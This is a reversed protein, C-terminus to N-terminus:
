LGVDSVADMADTSAGAAQPSAPVHAALVAAAVNRGLAASMGVYASTVRPNVEIVVPGREAHWVLDIGVFGALGPMAAAVARATQDLATHCTPDIDNVAIDVETLSVEGDADVKLRQRNVTLLEVDGAGIRLSLSMADGDVWPEIVAAEGVHARREHEAQASARDGFRRTHLSGAGDDPKVVWHRVTTDADLDLPTAIRQAQLCRLTAQKSSALRISAGDCGIWKQRPVADHLAALLGATEPAIVWVLDHRVAQRAVFDALAEGADAHVWPISRLAAPRTEGPAASAVSLAVGPLAVLDAALADRMALGEARLAVAADGRGAASASLYEVLFVRQMTMTPHQKALGSGM